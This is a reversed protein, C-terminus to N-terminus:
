ANTLTTATLELEAWDTYRELRPGVPFPKNAATSPSLGSEVRATFSPNRLIPSLNNINKLM